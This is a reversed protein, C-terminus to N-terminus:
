TRRWGALRHELIRLAQTALLGLVTVVVLPVLVDSTRLRAGYYTLRFGLGVNASFMEGVVVGILARGIGIRLGAMVLPLSAPLVVKAVVDTARGGYARVARVLVPDVARVAALTNVVIPITALLFAIAVVTWYGFGLWVILLPYFAILPASYLTWVFPDLAYEIDRQLGMALGIALGVTAALGFGVALEATSTQLDRLLEGSGWQRQFADGIRSPSSLVVPNLWGWRAALEWATVFLLLGVLGLVIPEYRVYVRRLAPSAPRTM